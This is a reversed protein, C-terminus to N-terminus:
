RAGMQSNKGADTRLWDERNIILAQNWFGELNYISREREQLIHIIIPGYDILVWRCEAKGEIAKSKYGFRSLSKEVSDVIARVQPQSSAACIVFYETLVTAKRVDMILTGLAKKAEAANAAEYAAQRSGILPNETSTSRTQTAVVMDTLTDLKVKQLLTTGKKGM